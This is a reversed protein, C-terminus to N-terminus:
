KSIKSHIQLLRQYYDIAKPNVHLKYYTFALANFVGIMQPSRDDFYKRTIELASLELELAKENMHIKKLM